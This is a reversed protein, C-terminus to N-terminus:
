DRGARRGGRIVLPLAALLALGLLPLLVPPSFIVGLDPTGGDALIAGMGAGVSTFVLAGPLIGFLTTVAFPVFAVGVFAPLLNAVFFPVAPVIRMVLLVSWVNRQLGDMLRAAAGGGAIRAATDRGIGLRVAAFILCAGVTAAAVNYAVGPFLGFLLGGSLTMVTAGPLSLAVVAAYAAMFVVPALVPHTAVWGQLATQAAGLQELTLRDRLLVFGAIAAGLILLLPLRRLFPSAQGAL